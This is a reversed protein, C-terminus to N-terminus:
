LGRWSSSPRRGFGFGSFVEIVSHKQFDAAFSEAVLAGEADFGGLQFVDGALADFDRLHAHSSAMTTPPPFKM